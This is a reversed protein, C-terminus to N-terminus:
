HLSIYNNVNIAFKQIMKFAMNDNLNSLAPVGEADTNALIYSVYPLIKEKANLNNGSIVDSFFQDASHWGNSILFYAFEPKGLACSPKDLLAAELLISGSIGIVGESNEILPFSPQFPDVLIIKKNRKIKRYFGYDRIGFMEPNEKVALYYGDPLKEAANLLETIEDRADGLVLISGEPRMHLGWLFYKEKPISNVGWIKLGMIRMYNTVISRIEDFSLLILNEALLANKISREKPVIFIRTYIRGSLSRIDKIFSRIMTKKKYLTEKTLKQALSFYIGSQNQRFFEIFNEAYDFSEKNSGSLHIKNILSESTGYGFNDVMTWRNLIRTHIFTLFIISEVKAIEFLINTPLTAREISIIVEPKNTKILNECWVVTDYLIKSEWKESIKKLFRGREDAYVWQNTKALEQLSRQNCHDAEWKKLFEFNIDQLNKHDTWNKFIEEQSFINGAFAVKIGNLYDKKLYFTYYDTLAISIESLPDIKSIEKALKVALELQWTQDALLLYKKKM